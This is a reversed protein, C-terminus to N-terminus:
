SCLATQRCSAWPIAEQRLWARSFGAWQQRNMAAVRWEESGTVRAVRREGNMLFPFHRGHRRGSSTAQEGSWWPLGRFHSVSAAASPCQHSLGRVRHGTFSWYALVARDGWRDEELRHIMARAIRLMRAEGDVWTEGGLRKLGMMKRVCCYQFHNLTSQLASTPFLIGVAWMFTGQVVKNLVQIRQKLPARSTLIHLIGGFKGRAKDLLAYLIKMETNERAVPLNLVTFTEEESMPKIIDEGLKIEVNRAGRLCLLKSKTPQVHLGFAALKPLLENVFDQLSVITRKWTIVDDMFACGDNGLGPIVEGEGEREISSLIEDILRSFIVPSETSGQKVGSNARLPVDDWPLALIVETSALLRILCKTEFPFDAAAWEVIRNALKERGVSDFARRMDLKLMYCDAQWERSLHAVHTTLWAMEAPQRHKCAFQKAGKPQLALEMRALLLRSFTKAVHSALAIPRLHKAEGPACLKPILTAISVDWELPTDGTFLIDNFFGTLSGLSVPSDVMNKLLEVPILDPGVARGNKGKLVAQRVDAESFPVFERGETLHATTARLTAAIDKVQKDQFVGAFHEVVNAVPDRQESKAMFEDGWAGRKKTLNRYVKWDTAAQQLREEKWATKERRLNSLYQKWDEAQRSHKAMDRLVKVAASAKFKRGLSAPKTFGRALDSLSQQDVRPLDPVVDKVVRPGGFAVRAVREGTLWGKVVVRDHDTGAEHRSEEEICLTRSHTNSVFAGDIQTSAVNGKRSHFTAARMQESLPAAQEFGAEAAIQRLDGWKASIEGPVVGGEGESWRFHTNFDGLAFAQEGSQREVGFFEAAFRNIEERPESNPLHASGVWIHKQSPKHLLRLWVGKNTSIKRKLHFLEHKYFIGVARYMLVHQFLVANLVDGKLIQWTHKQRPFEQVALVDCCPVHSLLPKIKKECTGALNWAGISVERGAALRGGHVDPIELEFDEERFPVAEAPDVDSPAYVVDPIFYKPGTINAARQRPVTCSKPPSFSKPEGQNTALKWRPGGASRLLGQTEHGPVRTMPFCFKGCLIDLIAFKDRLIGAVMSPPLPGKLLGAREVSNLGLQLLRTLEGM